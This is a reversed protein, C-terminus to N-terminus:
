RTPPCHGGKGGEGVLGHEFQPAGRGRAAVLPARRAQAPRQRQAGRHHDAVALSGAVVQDRGIGALRGVDDRGGGAGGGRVDGVRDGLGLPAGSRPARDAGGVPGRRQEPRRRPEALAPELDGRELDALARLRPGLGIGVHALRDVEELVVGASRDLEIGSRLQQLHGPFTVLHAVSGAAYRRDDGGPVERQRDWAAHRRRREGGPVRDHELGGLLRWATRQHEDLRKAGTAHGVRRDRQQGAFAVGAGREHGVRTDVRDREGARHRNPDLDRARGGFHTGPCRWRFCTTDSSPPLFQRITSESASRSSATGAITLESLVLHAVPGSLRPLSRNLVATQLRFDQAAFLAVAKQACTEDIAGLAVDLAWVVFPDVGVTTYGWTDLLTLAQQALAFAADFSCRPLLEPPIESFAVFISDATDGIKWGMKLARKLHEGKLLPALLNLVAARDAAFALSEARDLLTDLGDDGRVSSALALFWSALRDSDPRQGYEPHLVYERNAELLERIHSLAPQTLDQALDRVLDLVEKVREKRLPRPIVAELVLREKEAQTLFTALTLVVEVSHSADRTNIMRVLGDLQSASALPGILRIAIVREHDPLKQGLSLAMAVFNERLEGQCRAAVETLGRVQQQADTWRSLIQVFEEVLPSSPTPLGCLLEVRRAGMVHEDIVALAMRTISQRRSPDPLSSALRVLIEARKDFEVTEEAAKIIADISGESWAPSVHHLIEILALARRYPYWIETASRIAVDYLDRSIYPALRGLIRARAFPSFLDQTDIVLRSRASAGLADIASCVVDSYLDENSMHSAAVIVEEGIQRNNSSTSALASKLVAHSHFDSGFRASRLTHVVDPEPLHSVISALALARCEEDVFENAVAALAQVNRASLSSVVSEILQAKATESQLQQVLGMIQAESFFGERLAAALLEPPSISQLSVISSHCVTSFVQTAVEKYRDAVEWARRIDQAYGSFSGDHHEWARMWGEALLAYYDSPSSPGRGLHAGHNQLVYPPVTRPSLQNNSLREIVRRGYDCFRANWLTREQGSLLERFHQSLRPHTFVFGQGNGDGIVFRSLPELAVQLTWANLSDPAVEVLDDRTLPGLACSLLNLLTQVAVERLPSAQGWQRRQDRWWAEFYGGIGSALQSLDTPNLFSLRSDSGLLAEVYLTVLLPDGESLRTLQAVLAPNSFIHSLAGGMSRLVDEVGAYSLPPLDIITTSTDWGLRELWEKSGRDFALTRASVLVKFGRGMRPPLAFDKGPRWDTAEDLGDIVVLYPNQSEPRDERLHQGVEALWEDPESNLDLKRASGDLLYRLRAGLLPAFRVKQATNFRISVPVLAAQAKNEATVKASWRALLASKGRGAPAVLIATRTKPDQLWEDLQRFESDRGGFPRPRNATGLYQELFRELGTLPDGPLGMLGDTIPSFPSRVSAFSLAPFVRAIQGTTIGFGTSTRSDYSGVIGVVRGMHLEQIPGGSFGPAFDQSKFQLHGDSISDLLEGYGWNGSPYGLPFGYSRFRLSGSHSSDFLVVPSVSDQLSGNLQLIAVDFQDLPSWAIVNARGVQDAFPFRVFIESTPPSPSRRDIGSADAVVHACTVLTGRPTIAIATGIAQTGNPARIEAIAAEFM